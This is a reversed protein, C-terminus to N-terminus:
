FQRVKIRRPYDRMSLVACLTNVELFRGNATNDPMRKLVAIAPSNVTTLVIPLKQCFKIKECHIPMDM